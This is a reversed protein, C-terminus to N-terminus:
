KLGATTKGTLTLMPRLRKLLAAGIGKAEVLEDLSKFGGHQKRASIIAQARTKGVGPLLELEQVSATNVNVTGTLPLEAQAGQTPLAAVLLALIAVFAGVRASLTTRIM